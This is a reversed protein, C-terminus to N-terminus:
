RSQNCIDAEEIDSDYDSSHVGSTESKDVSRQVLDPNQRNLRIHSYKFRRNLRQCEPDSMAEAVERARDFSVSGRRNVLSKRIPLESSIPFLHSSILPRRPSPVPSCPLPSSQPSDFSSEVSLAPSSIELCNLDKIRQQMSLVDAVQPGSIVIGERNQRKRRRSKLSEVRRLLAKASDRFRESGTRSFNTDELSHPM